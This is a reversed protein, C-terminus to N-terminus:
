WNLPLTIKISCGSDPQSVISLGYANGFLLKLRKHVNCVGIGNTNQINKDSILLSDAKEQTMGVGNDSLTIVLIKDNVTVANLEIKGAATNFIGHTISNEILPQICFRPIKASLLPDNIDAHFIIANGYRMQMLFIYDNLFAIEDKLSIDKIKTGFSYHLTGGLKTLMDAVSTSGNITALWRISNLTNYLFHPNIQAMLAEYHMSEKLTAQESATKMLGNICMSVENLTDSLLNIDEYSNTPKCVSFDGLQLRNMQDVVKQIPVTIFRTIINVVILLFIILVAFCIAFLTKQNNLRETLVATPVTVRLTMGWNKIPAELVSLDTGVLSDAYNKTCIITDRNIIDQRYQLMPHSSLRDWLDNSPIRIKLLAVIKNHSGIAWTSELDGSIESDLVNYWVCHLDQWFSEDFIASTDDLQYNYELGIVSGNPLIVSIDPNLSYLTANSISRIIKLLYERSFAAEASHPDRTMTVVYDIIDSNTSIYAATYSISEVASELQQANNRITLQASEKEITLLHNNLNETFFFSFIVIPSIVGLFLFILLAKKITLRSLIHKLM